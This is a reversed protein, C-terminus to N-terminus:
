QDRPRLRGFNIPCNGLWELSHNNNTRRADMYDIKALDQNGKLSWACGRLLYARSYGPDNKLAENFDAIARDPNFLELWSEGRNVRALSLNPNIMIAASFAVIARVLDGHQFWRNGLALYTRTDDRDFKEPDEGDTLLCILQNNLGILAALQNLEALISQRDQIIAETFVRVLASQDEALCPRESSGAAVSPTALTHLLLLFNIAWLFNM